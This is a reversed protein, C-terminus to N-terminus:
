VKDISWLGIAIADIIDYDVVDDIGNIKNKIIKGTREKRERAAIKKAETLGHQNEWAIKEAKSVNKYGIHSKWKMIEVDTVNPSFELCKGWIHGVIYSLIRSTQPSQIYITQEIVVHDIHPYFDFLAPLAANITALKRRMDRPLDIKGVAVLRSGDKKDFIAFAISKSSSDIALYRGSESPEPQPRLSKAVGMLVVVGRGAQLPEM